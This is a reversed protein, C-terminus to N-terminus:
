MMNRGVWFVLIVILSVYAATLGFYKKKVDPWSKPYFTSAVFGLSAYLIGPPFIPNLKFSAVLNGHLIQHIARQSGCGPCLWGTLSRFLCPPFSYLEPDFFGYLVIIIIGFAFWFLTKRKL